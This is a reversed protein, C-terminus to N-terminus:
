HSFETLREELLERAKGLVRRVQREARSTEAAIEEVTCGQLRLEIMQRHLPRLTTLLTELEESLALAESPTPENCLREPPLGHFSGASDFSQEAELSRKAAAHREAQKLVKHVTIAALLRWLSGPRDAQYQGDQARIFFSRFVSQVIDDADVKRALKGSLRRRALSTLRHVYRAFIENAAAQDGERVRSLLVASGNDLM